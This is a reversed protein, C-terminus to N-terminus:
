IEEWWFFNDFHMSNQLDVFADHLVVLLKEMYAPGVLNVVVIVEGQQARVGGMKLCLSMCVSMWFIEVLAVDMYSRMIPAREEYSAGKRLLLDHPHPSLAHTFPDNVCKWLKTLIIM